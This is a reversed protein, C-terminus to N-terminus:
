KGKKGALMWSGALQSLDSSVKGFPVFGCACFSLVFERGLDQAREARLYALALLAHLHLCQLLM